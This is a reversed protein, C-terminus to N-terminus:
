NKVRRYVKVIRAKRTPVGDDTTMVSWDFGGVTEVGLVGLAATLNKDLQKTAIEDCEVQGNFLRRDPAPTLGYDIEPQGYNGNALRPMVVAVSEVICRHEPNRALAATLEAAPETLEHAQAYTIAFQLVARRWKEAPVPMMRYGHETAGANTPSKVPFEYQEYKYGLTRALKDRSARAFAPDDVATLLADVMAVRVIPDPDAARYVYDDPKASRCAERAADLALEDDVVKQHTCQELHLRERVTLEASVAPTLGRAFIPEARRILVGWDSSNEFAFTGKARNYKDIQTVQHLEGLLLQIYAKAISREDMKDFRGEGGGGPTGMKVCAPLGVLAVVLLSTRLTM